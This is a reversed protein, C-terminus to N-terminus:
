QNDKMFPTFYLICAYKHQKNLTNTLIVTKYLTKIPQRKCLDRAIIQKNVSAIAASRAKISAYTFM